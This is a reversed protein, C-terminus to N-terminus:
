KLGRARLLDAVRDLKVRAAQPVETADTARDLTVFRYHIPSSELQSVLAEATGTILYSADVNLVPAAPGSSPFREGIWRLYGYDNATISLGDPSIGPYGNERGFTVKQALDAPQLVYTVSRVIGTRSAVWVASPRNVSAAYISPLDLLPVPWGATQPVAEEPPAYQLDRTVDVLWVGRLGARNWASLLDKAGDVVVVSPATAPVARAAVGARDLAFLSLLLSVMVVAGFWAAFRWGVGTAVSGDVPADKESSLNETAHERAPKPRQM